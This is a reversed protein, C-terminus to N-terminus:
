KTLSDLHCPILPILTVKIGEGENVGEIVGEIVGEYRTKLDTKTNDQQQTVTRLYSVNPFIVKVITSYRDGDNRDIQSINLLCKFSKKDDYRHLFIYFVM